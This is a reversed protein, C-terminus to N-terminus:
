VNVHSIKMRFVHKDIRQSGVRQNNGTRCVETTSRGRVIVLVHEDNSSVRTNGVNIKAFEHTQISVECKAVPEGLMWVGVFYLNTMQVFGILPPLAVKAIAEFGPLAAIKRTLRLKANVSYRAGSLVSQTWRRNCPPDILLGESF